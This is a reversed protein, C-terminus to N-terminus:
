IKQRNSKDGEEEGEDDDHNSLGDGDDDNVGGCSVIIM